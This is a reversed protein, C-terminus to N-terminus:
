SACALDGALDAYRSPLHSGRFSRVTRAISRMVSHEGCDGPHVGVRMIRPLPVHRALAAVMLSSAMRGKTRTAWTIVPSRALTRGGVPEWVRWHDEAIAIAQNELAARAGDGYLWAPAVFGAIPTGTVDEILRRGSAIRASAEAHELGLFEGEGATMHQAKLRASRSNHITDDRHTFGHLFIEHGAEAWGRLRRAFPSDPVIPASSWFDPVVLLALPTDGDHQLHDHLMAVERDHRPSVDHISLLLRRPTGAEKIPNPTMVRM